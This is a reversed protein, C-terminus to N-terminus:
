TQAEASYEAILRGLRGAIRTDIGASLRLFAQDNDYSSWAATIRPVRYGFSVGATLPLKAARAKVILGDIFTEIYPRRNLRAELFRFAVLGGLHDYGFMEAHDPHNVAGPFIAALTKQGSQEGFACVERATAGASATQARLYSLYAGRSVRPLIIPEAAIAGIGRRLHEFQQALSPDVVVVGAPGLDMGCQLYKCASEYYLVRVNPLRPPAFPDFGGSLLTGDVVFWTEQRCWRAAAELLRHMDILNLDACNTLPDVFVVKPQYAEIAEVIHGRTGGEAVVINMCPLTKLQQQSEFYVGPDLLVRDQPGLVQRLLFSEILAYAAMGSSTLLVRSTGPDLGLQAAYALEQVATDPCGYRAYSITDRSTAVPFSNMACSEQSAPASWAALSTLTGLLRYASRLTSEVNTAADPRLAGQLLRRGHEILSRALVRTPDIDGLRRSEKRRLYRDMREMAQHLRQAADARLERDLDPLPDGVIAADTELVGADGLPLCMESGPGARSMVESIEVESAM